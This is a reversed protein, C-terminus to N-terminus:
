AEEAEAGEKEGSLRLVPLKATYEEILDRWGTVRASISSTRPTLTEFPVISASISIPQTLIRPRRLTGPLGTVYPVVSSNM